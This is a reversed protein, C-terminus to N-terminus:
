KERAEFHNVLKYCLAVEEERGPEGEFLDVHHRVLYFESESRIFGRGKIKDLRAADKALFEPYHAVIAAALAEAADRRAEVQMSGLMMPLERLGQEIGAAFASRSAGEPNVYRNRINAWNDALQKAISDGLPAIATHFQDFVAILKSLKDIRAM